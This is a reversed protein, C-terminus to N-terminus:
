GSYAAGPVQDWTRGDLERGARKKGMRWFTTREDLTGLPAVRPRPSTAKIKTSASSALTPEKGDVAYSYEGWQKFFFAVDASRCQDRLSRAWDPHMPRSRPGSEGGAIIWDIRPKVGDRGLWSRLDVPGLLPECSLFRTGAPVTLLIPVREDARRQDEVSTGYWVNRPPTELWAGPIMSAIHEPRKTLLLWDLSPTKAVVDWLRTREDVVHPNDEFVDAMSACFVRTRRGAQTAAANWKLPEQWHTDGFLRRTARPGWVGHGYRTALTEAYCHTCGPSVKTCGWWPNFTHDTWEIPSHSAM